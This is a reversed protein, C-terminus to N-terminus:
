PRGGTPPASEAKATQGTTKEIWPSLRVDEFGTTKVWEHVQQVVPNNGANAQIAAAAQLLIELDRPERQRKESYNHVAKQFAMQPKNDLFLLFRAEEQEHLQEGRKSMAEFRDRLDKEFTKLRPDGTQQAAQAMRMLLIDSAEWDKLLVLADAGRKQHLLFDAYAGLLYQDTVGVQLAQQYHQEAEQTLGQREAMEALRTLAWLRLGDSSDAQHQEFQSKLGQYAAPLQGMGADAFATCGAANLASAYPQLKACMAKAQAYKGEVMWLASKWSMAALHDPKLNIAKDFAQHAQDFQHTYQVLLGSLYWWDANSQQQPFRPEFVARAYGIYRPEGTALAADFYAEILDFAVAMDNPQISLQKKLRAVKKLEPTNARAPLKEVVQDKSTPTYPAALVPTTLSSTGLLTLFVM